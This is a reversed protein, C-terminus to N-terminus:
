KTSKEGSEIAPEELLRQSYDFAYQPPPHVCKLHVSLGQQNVFECDCQPCPIKLLDENSTYNSIELKSTKGRHTVKKTLGFAGLTAQRKSM